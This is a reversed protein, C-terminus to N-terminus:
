SFISGRREFLNFRISAIFVGRFTSATCLTFVELSPLSISVFGEVALLTFPAKLCDADNASENGGIPTESFQTSAGGVGDPTIM